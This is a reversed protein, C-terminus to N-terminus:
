RCISFGKIALDNGECDPYLAVTPYPECLVQNIDNFPTKQALIRVADLEWYIGSMELRLEVKKFYCYQSQTIPDCTSTDTPLGLFLEKFSHADFGNLQKSTPVFCTQWPADYSFKKWDLFKPSNSPKYKIDLNFCGKVNLLQFDINNLVKPTFPSDYDYARTYVISDILRINGYGDDDWTQDPKLEYISNGVDDDKSVVFCREGIVCMDMPRVGTWIGAWVPRSDSGLTSINDLELVAFGANTYDAIPLGTTTTAKVRYPNATIFIKNRFYGLVAYKALSKDNYKLWNRVERSMPVRAWKHQEDRSMSASRVQGDGSLFFLDSNVNVLARPGIIGASFNFVSGFQGAEWASRPNQTAYSTISDATAVLLSGIGTSSDVAQLFAMATINETNYSFTPLQFIQGYFTSAPQMIENFTIPANPAALSGSPDGATIENGANGIFLRNQNYAGLVSIPVENKLPDARRASAGDMIVPYAPWDFITLYKGAASWNLRPTYENLKSGGDIDIRSFAYTRINLLYIIGSVIIILYNESGVAYPILAQFKGAKFIDAFPIVQKTSLEVGGEPYTPNVRSWGWRPRLPGNQTSVNIGSYYADKPVQDPAKSADQGGLFSTSGDQVVENAM